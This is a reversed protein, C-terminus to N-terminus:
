SPRSADMSRPRGLSSRGRMPQTGLSRLSKLLVSTASTSASSAKGISGSRALAIELFERVTIDVGTTLVNDEREDVQLM